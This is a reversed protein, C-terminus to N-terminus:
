WTKCSLREFLFLDTKGFSFSKATFTIGGDDENVEVPSTVTVGPHNRGLFRVSTFLIKFYVNTQM